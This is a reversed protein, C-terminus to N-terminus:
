GINIFVSTRCARARFQMSVTKGTEDSNASIGREISGLVLTAKKTAPRLHFMHGQRSAYQSSTHSLPRPTASPYYIGFQRGTKSAKTNPPQCSSCKQVLVLWRRWKLVSCKTLVFGLYGLVSVMRPDSNQACRVPIKVGLSPCRKQSPPYTSGSRGQLPFDCLNFDCSSHM